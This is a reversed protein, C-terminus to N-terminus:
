KQNMTFIAGVTGVTAGDIDIVSIKSSRPEIFFRNFLIPIENVHIIRKSVFQPNQIQELGQM